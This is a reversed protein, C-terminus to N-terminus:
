AEEYTWLEWMPLGTQEDIPGITYTVYDDKM